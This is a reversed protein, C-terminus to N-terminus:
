LLIEGFNLVNVYLKEFNEQPLMGGFGGLNRCPKSQGEEGWWYSLIRSQARSNFTLWVELTFATYKRPKTTNHKVRYSSDPMVVQRELKLRPWLQPVITTPYNCVKSKPELDGKCIRM